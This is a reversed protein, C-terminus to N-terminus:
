LYLYFEGAESVVPLQSLPGSVVETWGSSTVALSASGEMANPSHSLTANAASWQSGSEFGLANSLVGQARVISPLGIHLCVDVPVRTSYLPPRSRWGCSGTCTPPST